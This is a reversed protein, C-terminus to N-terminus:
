LSNLAVVRQYLAGPHAKIMGLLELEVLLANFRQTTMPNMKQLATIHIPETSLMSRLMSSQDESLKSLDVEVQSRRESAGSKTVSKMEDGGSMAIELDLDDRLRRSEWGLARIIDDASSISVADGRGILRNCGSFYFDTIRGPIAMAVRGMDQAIQMTAMAGGKYSSQILITGKSMGAIIRNRSIYGRGSIRAKLSSQESILTGGQKLIADAIYRHAAPTVSPLVTPLVAITPIKCSIAARHAYSDAGFALGSVIVPNHIKKSIDLVIKDSSVLGMEDSERTGVMSILNKTLTSVDGQTFIVHPPTDILRLLTPYEPDTRAIPRVGQQECYRMEREADSFTARSAIAKAVPERLKCRNVLEDFSYSFIREASFNDDVLQAISKDGLRPILGLALDFIDMKRKINEKVIEVLYSIAKQM